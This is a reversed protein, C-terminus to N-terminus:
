IKNVYIPDGLAALAQEAAAAAATARAIAQEMQQLTGEPVTGGALLAKTALLLALMQSGQPADFLLTVSTSFSGAKGQEAYHEKGLVIGDCSLVLSDSGVVYRLGEPLTLSAGAALPAPLLWSKQCRGQSAELAAAFKAAANDLLSLAEQLAFVDDELLGQPDPLPLDLFDTKKRM